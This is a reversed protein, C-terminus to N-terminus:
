GVRVGGNVDYTAGTVFGAKASALSAVVWAVEEATGFRGLPVGAELGARAEPSLANTIKSAIPGPAVANVRIGEDALQRAFSRTIALIAAKSAAYHIGTTLAGVEGAVSSINVMARDGSAARMLPLVSRSLLFTGRANTEMVQDWSDIDIEQYPEYPCVSGNNVLVHLEGWAQEIEDILADISTPSRLDLHSVRAEVGQMALTEALRRTSAEDNAYSLWVDAGEAALATATAGGIGGSAGTM